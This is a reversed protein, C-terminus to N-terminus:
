GKMMMYNWRKRLVIWRCIRLSMKNKQMKMMRKINRRIFLQIEELLEEDYDIDEDYINETNYNGYEYEEDENEEIQETQQQHDVGALNVDPFIIEKKKWNYIEIAKIWEGGGNEVANIVVYTITIKVVKLITILKGMRLNM